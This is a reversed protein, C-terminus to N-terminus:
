DKDEAQSAAWAPYPVQSGKMAFWLIHNLV